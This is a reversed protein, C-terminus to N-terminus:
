AIVTVLFYNICLITQVICLMDQLLIIYRCNILTLLIHINICLVFLRFEVLRRREDMLPLIKLNEFLATLLEMSFGLNKLQLSM